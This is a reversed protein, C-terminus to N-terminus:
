IRGCCNKHKKGSGCPCPGNRDTKKEERYPTLDIRHQVFDIDAISPMRFSVISKGNYNSIAFDGKSIIDAGLLCDILMNPMSAIELDLIEVNNPLVINALHLEGFAIGNATHSMTDGMKPIGLSKAVAGSITTKMAGTDWLATISIKNQPDFTDVVEVDITYRDTIKNYVRRTCYAHKKPLEM